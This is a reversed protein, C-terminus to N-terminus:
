AAFYLVVVLEDVVDGRTGAQQELVVRVQLPPPEFLELLEHGVQEVYEVEDRLKLDSAKGIYAHALQLEIGEFRGVLVKDSIQFAVLIVLRPELAKLHLVPRKELLQL